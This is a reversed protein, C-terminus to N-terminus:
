SRSEVEVGEPAQIMSRVDGTATREHRVTIEGYPTPVAGEAFDLDGLHPTVVVRRYGPALPRVGLVYESLWATPGAAWGHCLSHRLGIYCHEGYEAHIDHKGNPTLEDIRGAHIRPSCCTV